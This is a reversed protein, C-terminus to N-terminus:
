PGVRHLDAECSNRESADRISECLSRGCRSRESSNLIAECLSRDKTKQAVRSYCSWRFFQDPMEDCLAVKGQAAAVYSLCDNRYNLDPMRSCVLPDKEEAAIQSICHQRLMTMRECYSVDKKETAFIMLCNDRTNGGPIKECLTEDMNQGALQYYCKDQQYSDKIKQCDTTKTPIKGLFALKFMFVIGFILLLFGGVLGVSGALFVAVSKRISLGFVSRIAVINVLISWIILYYGLFNGIVPLRNLPSLLWVAGAYGTIALTQNFSVGADGHLKNGTRFLVWSWISWYLLGLFGFAVSQATVACTVLLGLIVLFSAEGLGLPDEKIEAFVAADLKLIRIIRFWVKNLDM